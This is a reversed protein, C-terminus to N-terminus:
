LSLLTSVYANAFVIAMDKGKAATPGADLDNSLSTTITASTGIYSTLADIPPVVFDLSNSGSGWRYFLFLHTM